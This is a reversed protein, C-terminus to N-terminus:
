LLECLRTTVLLHARTPFVKDVLVQHTEPDSDGVGDTLVYVRYGRDAADILTSLVVGSTSIGALM